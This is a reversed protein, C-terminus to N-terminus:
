SLDTWIEHGIGTQGLPLTGEQESTAQLRVPSLESPPLSLHTQWNAEALLPYFGVLGLLWWRQM